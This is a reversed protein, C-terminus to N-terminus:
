LNLGNKWTYPVTLLSRELAVVQYERTLTYCWTVNRWPPSEARAVKADLLNIDSLSLFVATHGRLFAPNYLELVQDKKLSFNRFGGTGALPVGFFNFFGYSDFARKCIGVM